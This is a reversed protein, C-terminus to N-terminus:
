LFRYLAKPKATLMPNERLNSVAPSGWTRLASSSMTLKLTPECEGSPSLFAKNQHYREGSKSNALLLEHASDCWPGHFLAISQAPSSTLSRNSILAVLRDLLIIRIGYLCWQRNSTLLPSARILSNSERKADRQRRGISFLLSMRYDPFPIPKSKQV